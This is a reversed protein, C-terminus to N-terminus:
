ARLVIVKRAGEDFDPLARYYDTPIKGEEVREADLPVILDHNVEIVVEDRPDLSKLKEILQEVTM